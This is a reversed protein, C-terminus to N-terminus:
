KRVPATKGANACLYTIVAAIVAVVIMGPIFGAGLTGTTILTGVQYVLFAVTYGAAFQLAVGSWFWKRDGMEANM